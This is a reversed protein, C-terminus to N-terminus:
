RDDHGELTANDQELEAEKQADFQSQPVDSFRIYEQMLAPKIVKGSKSLKAPAKEYVDIVFYVEELVDNDLMAAQMEDFVKLRAQTPFLDFKVEKGDELTAEFTLVEETKGPDKYARKSTKTASTLTFMMENEALERPKAWLTTNAKPPHYKAM